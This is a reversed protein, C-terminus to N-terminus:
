ELDGGFLKRVITRAFDNSSDLILKRIIPYKPHDYGLVLEVNSLLTAQNKKNIRVIYAVTDMIDFGEMVVRNPM